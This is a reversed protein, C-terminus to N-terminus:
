PTSAHPTSCAAALLALGFTAPAFPPLSHFGVVRWGDVGVPLSQHSYTRGQYTVYGGRFSAGVPEVLRTRFQKSAQMEVLRELPIPLLSRFIWEPRNSVFVVGDPSVYVTPEPREELAREFREVSVKAVLVGLPGAGEAGRVPVGIFIGRQGTTVGLAQYVRHRGHNMVDSFYPRFDYNEGTLRLDDGHLTSAVVRGTADLLYVFMAGTSARVQDMVALALPQDTGAGAALQQVLPALTAASELEHRVRSFVEADLQRALEQLEARNGDGAREVALHRALVFALFVSVAFLAALMTRPPLRDVLKAIRRIVGPM